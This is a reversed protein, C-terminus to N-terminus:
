RTSFTGPHCRTRFAITHLDLYVRECKGGVNKIDHEEASMIYTCDILFLRLYTVLNTNTYMM